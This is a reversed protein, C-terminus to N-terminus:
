LCYEGNQFFIWCIRSESTSRRAANSNEVTYRVTIMNQDYSIELIIKTVANKLHLFENQIHTHLKWSFRQNMKSATLCLMLTVSFLQCINLWLCFCWIQETPIHYSFYVCLIIFSVHFFFVNLHILGIVYTPPLVADSQLSKRLRFTFFLLMTQCKSVKIAQCKTAVSVLVLSVILSSQDSSVWMFSVHQWVQYSECYVSFKQLVKLIM